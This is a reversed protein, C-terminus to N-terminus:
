PFKKLRSIQIFYAGRGKGSEFSDGSNSIPKASRPCIQLVFKCKLYDLCSARGSM